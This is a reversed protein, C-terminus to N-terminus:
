LHYDITMETGLNHGAGRGNPSCDDFFAQDLFEPIRDSLICNTRSTPESTDRNSFTCGTARATTCSTCTINWLQASPWISGPPTPTGLKVNGTPSSTWFLGDKKIQYTGGSASKTIEWLGTSAIPQTWLLIKSTFSSPTLEGPGSPLGVDNILTSTVSVGNGVAPSCTAREALPSASVTVASLLAALVFSALM